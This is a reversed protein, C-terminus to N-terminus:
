DPPLILWVYAAPRRGACPGLLVELELSEAAKKERHRVTLSIKFGLYNGYSVLRRPLRGQLVADVLLAIRGVLHYGARECGGPVTFSALVEPQIFLDLPLGWQRAIRSVNKLSGRLTSLRYGRRRFIRNPRM